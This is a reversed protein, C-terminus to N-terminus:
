KLYCCLHGRYKSAFNSDKPAHLWTQRHIGCNRANGRLINQSVKDPLRQETHYLRQKKHSDHLGWVYVTQGFQRSKLKSARPSHLLCQTFTVFTHVFMHEPNAALFTLITFPTTVVAHFYKASRPVTYKEISWLIQVLLYV